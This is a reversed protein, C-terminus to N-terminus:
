DDRPPQPRLRKVKRADPPPVFAFVSRGPAADLKWGEYTEVTRITGDDTPITSSAKLVFPEGDAAVWLEWDMDAQKFRVHHARAGGLREVGAYSGSLVGDLLMEGPDEALVNQFLMGVNTHGFRQLYKGVGALDGPARAETYQKLRRGHTFLHKGDSVVELGAGPSDPLRTRLAFRNPRELDITVTVRLHQKEKGRTLLTTFAGDAHLARAKKYLAAARKVVAAAKRDSGAPGKAKDGAAARALSVCVLEKNNRAFVCRDAFAPHAWVVHRGRSFEAPEVIRARDIEDYGRPTLNALILEGADNFLVFRDGQPVLFATGCDTKKGGTAAYTEWLQDGTKMDCCRLEGNACVGYIHGDKLVPTSMLCHLGVPRTPKKTRDKWLVSAAPRDGALRLMMPGHYFSTLFLLDGARRVTAITPAPRQPEGEAPYPQTWYVKGTTPDLGNVSESHWVILQRKGGAEILVPPSYGIEETTLAKWVEKGTDKDFAVVASGEGGVLCYILRGDLLPSAAWGWAPPEARYDRAVNRAWCVAGTAADLCRLDGMAGLTYVRGGHVLPTTRPGSRYAITYRCDYAHQWLLKGDGAGFCVVREKGAGGPRKPAPTASEAQPATVRDMVYVRGAAVAPGSNGPGLPARWKVKPGGAPFRDVLGTERWVGERDPGLWQPWDAAHGRLSLVLPALTALALWGFPPSFQRGRQM